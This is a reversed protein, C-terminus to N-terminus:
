DEGAPHQVLNGTLAAIVDDVVDNMGAQAVTTRAALHPTLLVNPAALLPDNPPPPEPDYVDIAAGALQGASLAGALAAVDVVPGRATNLIAADDKLRRLLAEDALHYTADQGEHTLPTHFTLFDAELLDDLPLFRAEATERALPPDNQLVHLGLAEAKQVVRSGVNGVGVVGITKGALEYEGRRALVLLAAVIYEAVSNANSGPASVFAIGRQRLFDLDVHDTGITASAIFRVPSGGLMEEDIKTVSRTLFVECDRFTEPTADRGSILEVNGLTGFAEEAFPINEDAIIKM